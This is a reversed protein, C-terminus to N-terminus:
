RFAGYGYDEESTRHANEWVRSISATLACRNERGGNGKNVREMNSAIKAAYDQVFVNEKININADARM